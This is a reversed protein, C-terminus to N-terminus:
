AAPTLERAKNKNRKHCFYVKEVFWLVPSQAHTACVSLAHPPSQSFVSFPFFFFFFLATDKCFATPLFSSHSFRAGSCHDSLPLGTDPQFASLIAPIFTAAHFYYQPSNVNRKLQQRVMQRRSTFGAAGRIFGAM